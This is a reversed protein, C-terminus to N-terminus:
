PLDVSLLDRARNGPIMPSDPEVRFMPLGNSPAAEGPFRLGLRALESIVEGMTNGSAEARSRVAEFVDEDLTLTTRM